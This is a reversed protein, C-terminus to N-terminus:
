SFSMREWSGTGGVNILIGGLSRLIGGLLDLFIWGVVILHCEANSSAFIMESVGRM